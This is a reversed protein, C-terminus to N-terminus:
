SRDRLFWADGTPLAMALEWRQLEVGRALSTLQGAVTWAEIGATPPRQVSFELMTRWSAVPTADWGDHWQWLVAALEQPGAAGPYPDWAAVLWPSATPLFQLAVNGPTFWSGIHGVERVGAEVQARMDPDTLVRKYIWRGLEQETIPYKLKRQVEATLDLGTAGRAVVGADAKGVPRAEDARHSTWPDVTRAAQDLEALREASPGAAPEPLLPVDTVLLPYRGTAPLLAYAQQWAAFLREPAIDRVLVSGAPGHGIPLGALSTAALLPSIDDPEDLM